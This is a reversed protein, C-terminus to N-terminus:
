AAAPTGPTCVLESHTPDEGIRECRYGAAALVGIAEERLAAGHTSLFVVPRAERLTAAAGRLLDLEAGEVDVKLFDPSLGTSSRLRDVTTTVVRIKGEGKGALHGTGSGGGSSFSATGERDCVAAAVVEVNRLRNMEVHGRLHRLNRPSPECAVVRGGGRVLRSALLTYYGIHAGLDFVVSGPRVREAFLETLEPEYSGGVVRGPKGGALPSWWLGQLRGRAIPVRVSV